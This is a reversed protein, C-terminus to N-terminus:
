SAPKKQNILNGRISDILKILTFVVKEDQQDVETYRLIEQLGQYSKGLYVGNFGEWEDRLMRYAVLAQQVLIPFDEPEVPIEHELPETGLQECMSFYQEKTMGM